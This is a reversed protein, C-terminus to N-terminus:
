KVFEFSSITEGDSSFVCIAEIKDGKLIRPLWFADDAWMNELPIESIEYWSPKMEETEIEQGCWTRLLFIDVPHDLSSDGSFYFEIRGVWQLQDKQAILGAEEELERLACEELTEGPKVKGGFGNWKGQGMGRKKLGLLVKEVHNGLVPFVLTTAEM